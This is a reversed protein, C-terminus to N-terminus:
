AALPLAHSTRDCICASSLDACTITWEHVDPDAACLNDGCELSGDSHLVLLEHCHELEELCDLCENTVPM